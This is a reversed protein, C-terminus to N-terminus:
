SSMWLFKSLGWGMRRQSTDLRCGCSIPLADAGRTPATKAGGISQQVEHTEVFSLGSFPKCWIRSRDTRTRPHPPACGGRLSRPGPTPAGALGQRPSPARLGLLSLWHFVAFLLSPCRAWVSGWYPCAVSLLLFAAFAGFISLGLLLLVWLFFLCFFSSPPLLFVSPVLFFPDVASSLPRCLGWIRCFGTLGWRCLFIADFRALPPQSLGM